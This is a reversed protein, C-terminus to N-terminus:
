EKGSNESLRCLGGFRITPKSRMCSTTGTYRNRLGNSEALLGAMKRDIIKKQLLLKLNTYDDKPPVKVDKLMMAVIDFSAEVIEQFAKYTALKTKEDTIFAQVDPGIWEEIESSRRTIVETKDM